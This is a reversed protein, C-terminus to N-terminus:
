EKIREYATGAPMSALEQLGDHRRMANLHWLANAEKSEMPSSNAIYPSISGMDRQYPVRVWYKM